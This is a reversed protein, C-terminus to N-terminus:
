TLTFNRGGLNLPKTRPWWIETTKEFHVIEAEAVTSYDLMQVTASVQQKDYCASSVKGPTVVDIVKFGFIATKLPIKKRSKLSRRV